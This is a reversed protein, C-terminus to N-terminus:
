NKKHALSPEGPDPGRTAGVAIVNKANAPDGITSPLNTAEDGDNGAAFVSALDDHAHIFADADRSLSSYRPETSGWSDSHVRAGLDYAWRFYPALDTSIPNLEDYFDSRALDTFALRADPAIGNYASGRPLISKGLLSGAM